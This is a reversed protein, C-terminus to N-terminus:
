LMKMLVTSETKVTGTEGCKLIGKLGEQKAGLLCITVNSQRGSLVLINHFTSGPGVFKAKGYFHHM